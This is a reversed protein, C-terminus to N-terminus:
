GEATWWFDHTGGGTYNIVLNTGTATVYVNSVGTDKPTVTVRTPTTALGHATNAGTAIAGTSGGNHRVYGINNWFTLNTGSSSESFGVAQTNGTLINNSFHLNDATNTVKMGYNQTKSVQDDWCVNHSVIGNNSANGIYIGDVSGPTTQSNNSAKNGSVNINTADLVVIGYSLNARAVNNVLTVDNPAGATANKEIRIGQSNGYCQNDGILVSFPSTAHIGQGGNNLCHNGAVTLRACGILNQGVNLAIGDASNSVCWNNTIESDTVGEQCDIGDVNSVCWNNHVNVRALTGDGADVVIGDTGNSYCYNNHLDADTATGGALVAVALGIGRSATVHNGFLEVRTFTSIVIGHHTSGTIYLNGIKSDSLKRFRLACTTEDHLTQNADNGDVKFNFLFIGSNGNVLDDNEILATNASDKLKLVSTWGHGIIGVSTPVSLKGTRFIGKPVLVLGGGDAAVDDLLNQIALTNDTADDGVAGFGGETISRVPAREYLRVLANDLEQLPSNFMLATAAAGTLIPSYYTAM